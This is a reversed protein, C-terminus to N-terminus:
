PASMKALASECISKREAVWTQPYHSHQYIVAEFHNKAKDLDDLKLYCHGLYFERWGADVPFADELRLLGQDVAIIIKNITNYSELYPLVRGLVVEKVQEFHGADERVFWIDQQANFFGIRKSAHMSYDDQIPSLTYSWYVNVTYKGDLHGTGPQFEIGQRLHDVQREVIRPKKLAFGHAILHEKLLDRIRTKLTSDSM